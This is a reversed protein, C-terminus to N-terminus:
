APTAGRVRLCWSQRALLGRDIKGNPNRPLSDAGPQFRTPLMYYPLRGKCAEAIALFVLAGSGPVSRSRWWRSSRDWLRMRSM